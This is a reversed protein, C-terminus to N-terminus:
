LVRGLLWGYIFTRNQPREETIEIYRAAQLGNLARLIVKEGNAGRFKLFAVLAALTAPGIDGDAKLDAYLKGNQNMLTLIRQLWPTPIGPGMNVATDVLEAAIAPSIAAVKDFGPAMVYRRMYIDAAVGRPMDQMPGHYGAARAVAETIGYKTAGGRDDKNDVFGGEKLIIGEIISEITM